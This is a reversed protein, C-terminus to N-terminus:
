IQATFRTKADAVAKESRDVGSVHRARALLKPLLLGGGFGIELVRDQSAPALKQLAFANMKANARNMLFMIVAGPFGSPHSLQRAIFRPAMTEAVSYDALGILICPLCIDPVSARKNM